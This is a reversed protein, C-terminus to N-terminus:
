LPSFEKINNELTFPILKGKQCLEVIQTIAIKRKELYKISMAQNVLMNITTTKGAGSMGIVLVKYHPKKINLQKKQGNGM